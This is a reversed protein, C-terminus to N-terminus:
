RHHEPAEQVISHEKIHWLVNKLIALSQGSSKGHLIKLVAKVDSDVKPTWYDHGTDITLDKIEM